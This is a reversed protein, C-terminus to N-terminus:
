VPRIFRSLPLPSTPERIVNPLRCSAMWCFSRYWCADSNIRTFVSSWSRVTRLSVAHSPNCLNGPRVISVEGDKTVGSFDPWLPLLLDCRIENIIGFCDLEPYIRGGKLWKVSFYKDSNFM